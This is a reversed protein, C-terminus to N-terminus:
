VTFSDDASAMPSRLSNWLGPAKAPLVSDANAPRVDWLKAAIEQELEDADWLMMGVFYRAANPKTEIVRDITPRDLVAVVGPMLPITTGAGDPANRMLAFVGRALAPGGLYVPERVNRAPAQDPFLTELKVKTPRNVIFGIHGGDPLPAAVIVVQALPTDDLTQSAVLIVARSPDAARAAGVIFAAIVVVFAATVAVAATIGAIRKIM